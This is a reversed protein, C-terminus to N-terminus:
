LLFGDHGFVMCSFQTYFWTYTNGGDNPGGGMNANVQGNNHRFSVNLSYLVCGVNNTGQVVLDKGDFKRMYIDPYHHNKFWVNFGRFNYSINKKDEYNNEHIEKDGCPCREELLKKFGEKLGVIKVNIMVKINLKLDDNLFAMYRKIGDIKCNMMAELENKTVKQSLSIQQVQDRLKSIDHQMEEKEEHTM